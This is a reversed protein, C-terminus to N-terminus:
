TPSFIIISLANFNNLVDNPAGDTRLMTSLYNASNGIGNDNWFQIPFFCFMGTAQFTRKVDEAFQDNYRTTPTEGAA